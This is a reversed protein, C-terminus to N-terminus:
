WECFAVPHQYRALFRSGCDTTGQQGKSKASDEQCIIGDKFSPCFFAGPNQTNNSRNDVIYYPSSVNGDCKYECDEGYANFKYTGGAWPPNNIDALFDEGDRDIPDIRLAGNHSCVAEKGIATQYFAWQHYDHPGGTYYEELVISLAKSKPPPDPHDVAKDRKSAITEMFKDAFARYASGKPHFLRNNADDM